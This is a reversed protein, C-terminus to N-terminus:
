GEADAPGTLIGDAYSVQDVEVEWMRAAREVVRKKIEEGLDYAVWGGAFTTRSGGTVGTWGVSDTDVIHANVDEMELGLTEALQMALAARSGGIDISGLILSVTGDSNVTASSSSEMGGNFWFGLAVGRGTD